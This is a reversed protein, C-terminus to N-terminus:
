HSVAAVMGSGRVAEDARRALFELGGGRAESAVATLRTRGLGANAEMDLQGLTLRAECELTYYGLKKATAAALRLERRAASNNGEAGAMEIRAKQIAAPLKLAPDSSTLSFQIARNVSALAEQVKGQALLARSFVTYAGASDPDNKEKDFEAIAPRLLTEAQDAHSQEIALDALAVQSEAALDVAGMKDRLDLTGQFQQRAAQLDGEAKLVEGLVMMATTLEDYAGRSPGIVDIGRQALEHAEKVKGQALKLDAFRYLVYGPDGHDMSAIFELTQEYQKAAEPLRGRLYFIDAINSLAAATNNKDGAEEFHLKAQRYLHEARDLKGENAFNIAMNNLVAGTKEHEGLGELINLAKQYTAIAQEFHGEYGQRDGILRVADAAGARNGAALFVEYAEECAPVGQGPNEGYILNMCEEKRALAYVLRSGQASAKNVASRVLALEAPKNSKIARSESLDIRSDGSFPAPLNRLRHITELAQSAHGNLVQASALQLGYDVNDPFLEFLARYISTAQDQNGLSEYYDGEVLMRQSRPLDTSLDLAIKAEERRKQQYGLQDWARALMAHSLSFKPEARIAQELLDKAALTEFQRLKSLGLAYFKAAERDLPLAAIVGAVDPDELLPVGMRERLKAGVRSVIQFLEQAGGTEAVETLIEGTKGEQVRVDLRLQRQSPGAVSTGTITTFSGLVLVDGNLAKGIHSSTEQDLTGTQSWPSTLRLHAVDEGSVLRLKEGAALETSLMESLATELWADDGRGSLNRFGLIAVSKRLPIASLTQTPPQALFSHRAMAWLGLGIVILLAGAGLMFLVHRPAPTPQPSPVARDNAAPSLQPEPLEVENQLVPKATTVEDAKASIVSVPAIFRYGRRPVTEIFRPNESDDDLSARLKKLIVNLGGDFDVYTGEAWLERRLEERSVIEGTREVLLVLVRFPQDQLKVRVGSRSLTNRGSDAEFLGFRFIKSSVIAAPEM